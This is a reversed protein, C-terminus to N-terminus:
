RKSIAWFTPSSDWNFGVGKLGKVTASTANTNYIPISPLDELLIEEAQVYLKDADDTSAAASAKALLDDFEANSYKGYNRGGLASSAYIPTLYDEVSPYDPGWIDHYASDIKGAYANTIYEKQTPIPDTKADIGLTNKLQNVIADYTEKYTGDANYTITFDGDWPSIENAQGWLKKAEAADHRLVDAGKLSGSYPKFVPSAFDTAPSALGNMIKETIAKRNIALSIAKRRLVGEKGSFHKLDEPIGLAVRVPGPESYAKVTKDNLLNKLASSPIASTIDLNGSQVDAYQANTDTYMRYTIGDNKPQYYGTYNPNPVVEIQSDHKWSKFKYPGNGVPNEGFAKPDKYFSEPLPDYAMFTLVTPFVASAANLTITFHTDDQVSLGSLQEDGKLGDKQLDDYGKIYALYGANKQANKVNATYSWAKVYSEATIPTGDSFKLGNRLTVTYQTNDANPEIKEANENVISGDAKTVVLGTFLVRNLVLAGNGENTDGPVLPNQPEGIGLSIVNGDAANEGNSAVGCGALMTAAAIAAVITRITRTTRKM